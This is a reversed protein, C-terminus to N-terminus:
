SANTAEAAESGDSADDDETHRLIVIQDSSIQISIPRHGAWHEAYVPDDVISPDLWLGYGEEGHDFTAEFSPRRRGRGGRRGRRRRGTSGGGSEADKAAEVERKALAAELETAILADDEARLDLEEEVGAAQAPADPTAGSDADHVAARNGDHDFPKRAVATQRDSQRDHTKAYRCQQDRWQHFRHNQLRLDPDHM